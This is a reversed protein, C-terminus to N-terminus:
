FSPTLIKLRKLYYNLSFGLKKALPKIRKADLYDADAEIKGAYIIWNGGGSNCVFVQAFEDHLQSLLADDLDHDLWYNLVLWGDNNIRQASSKIFESQLQLKDIGHHHYLDAVLVDFNGPHKNIFDAADSEHIVLNQHKPLKFYHHAIKIVENRLEVASIQAEPLANFFALASTGGGLGLICVSKPQCFLLVMMIARSYEHQPIHPTAKIQCSQEHDNGFALYRKAGDDLVQIAGHQDLCRHIEKLM